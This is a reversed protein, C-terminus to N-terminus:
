KWPLRPSIVCARVSVYLCVCVCVSRIERQCVCVRVTGAYVFVCVGNAVKCCVKQCVVCFRRSSYFHTQNPAPSACSHLHLPSFIAFSLSSPSTVGANGTFTGLPLLSITIQDGFIRSLAHYQVWQLQRHPTSHPAPPTFASAAAEHNILLKANRSLVQVCQSLSRM